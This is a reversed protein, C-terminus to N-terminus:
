VIQASRAWAYHRSRLVEPSPMPYRIVRQSDAVFIGLRIVQYSFSETHSRNFTKTAKAAPGTVTEICSKLHALRNSYISGVNGTNVPDDPDVMKLDAFAIAPVQIPTQGGTLYRAFADPPLNSVVVPNIPSLEKYAYVPEPQAEGSYPEPRLELSRGDQTVLYMSDLRDLPVREIVRYVGLYLSNKPRGDAHAVCRRHAYEWDFASGFEGLLRCFIINENSGKRSGISMYSGFEEPPLQSAILAETPFISLYYNIAM